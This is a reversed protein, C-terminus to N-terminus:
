INRLDDATLLFVGHGGRTFELWVFPVNPYAEMLAEDSNGVEVVLIGDPSLHKKADQLIRHVLALGNDDAELAHQPEHSYENPLTQMEVHGVYPPNSVIIDYQEDQLVNMGDSHLLRVHGELGLESINYKAVDLADKDIDIADVQAEPFAVALAAAICGSGTCLDLMHHVNDPDVWPSFQNEILEAIPSRPILVREDVYFPLECFYSKNTLYPVPVLKECRLFLKECLLDKEFSTLKAIWYQRPWDFPLELVGLILSLFDDGANDTGHGFYISKKSSLSLSFRYVDLITELNEFAKQYDVLTCIDQYKKIPKM